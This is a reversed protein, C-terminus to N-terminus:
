ASGLRTTVSAGIGLLSVAIVVLWGVFPLSGAFSVLVVGVLFAIWRGHPKEEFPLRDGVAQCLGVFGLLWALGLFAWLLLSLPLGLVTIAFIVSIISLTLSAFFGVTASRLPHGEIDGAVRAVRQPFLGVVLVGAGALSLLFVLKRFFAGVFHAFGGHAESEVEDEASHDFAVNTPSGLDVRDGKLVAGDEVRVPGGLSVADGEVIGGSELEIPGGFSAVDGYVHGEITVPGGFSTVDGVQEDPGIHIPHGFSTRDELNKPRKTPPSPPTPVAPPAITGGREQRLAEVEQRLQQMQQRLRRVEVKPDASGTDEDASAQVHLGHRDLSIQVNKGTADGAPAPAPQAAPAEPAAAPQEAQQEVTSGDAPASAPADQAFATPTFALLGLLAARRLTSTIM